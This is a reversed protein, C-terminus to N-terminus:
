NYFRPSVEHNIASSQEQSQLKLHSRQGRFPRLSCPSSCTSVCSPPRLLFRGVCCLPWSATWQCCPATSMSMWWLSATCVICCVPSLSCAPFRPPVQSCCVSVSQTSPVWSSGATSGVAPRSHSNNRVTYKIPFFCSTVCM